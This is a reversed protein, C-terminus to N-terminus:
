KGLIQNVRKQVAFYLNEKRALGNGWNGRIVDQAIVTLAKDVDANEPQGSFINDPTSEIVIATHSDPNLLIDGPKADSIGSIIEFGWLSYFYRMTYTTPANGDQRIEPFVSAFCAYVFSSCDCETLTRSKIYADVDFDRKKLEAYLTNRESQDYGVLNSQAIKVGNKAATVAKEKDPHRIICTFNAGNTDMIFVERGTQDGAKAKGDWGANNNESGSAHVIKM